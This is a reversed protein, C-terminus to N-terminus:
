KRNQYHHICIIHNEIHKRNQWEPHEQSSAMPLMTAPTHTQNYPRGNDGVLVAAITMDDEGELMAVITM